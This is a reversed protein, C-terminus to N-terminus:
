ARKRTRIGSVGIPEAMPAKRNSAIGFADIGSITEVAMGPIPPADIWGSGSKVQLWGTDDQRLITLLGYDSHEGVGWPMDGNEAAPPYGFIRFLIFPDAMYRKELYDQHLGLSM